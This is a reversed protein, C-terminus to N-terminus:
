DVDTCTFASATAVQGSIYWNTGDSRLEVWDGPLAENTEAVFTLTDEASCAVTEGAVTVSGYIVDDTADAEPGQIKMDTTSVNASVVFRYVLGDAPTPLTQDEGATGMYFVKGTEAATIVNDGATDETEEYYRVGGSSSGITIVNAAAGTAINVTNATTGTAINVTKASNGTALNLTKTGGTGSLINVTQTGGTATGTFLNFTQTNASPADPFIDLTDNQASDGGAITITRAAAPAVNAIDITTVRTNNGINITGAGATGVGSMINVTTNAASAGNAISVTQAATNVGNGILVSQAATSSGVTINGTGAAAGITIASATAPTVTITTDSVISNEDLTLAAYAFNGTSVGVVLLMLVFTPIFKIGKLLKNM